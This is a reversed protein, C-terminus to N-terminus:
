RQIFAMDARFGTKNMLDKLTGPYLPFIIEVIQSGCAEGILGALPCCL